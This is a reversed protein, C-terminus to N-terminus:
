PRRQANCVVARIARRLVLRESTPCQGLTSTPAHRTSSERASRNEQHTTVTRTVATDGGRSLATVGGARETVGRPTVIQCGECMAVIYRNTTGPREIRTLEGAEVLAAVCRMVTRESLLTKAALFEYGPWCTGDDQATDAMALLVLRANGKAAHHKWVCTSVYVSM